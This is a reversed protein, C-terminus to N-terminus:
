RVEIMAVVDVHGPQLTGSFAATDHGSLGAVYCTAFDYGPTKYTWATVCSHVLLADGAQTTLPVWDSRATKYPALAVGPGGAFTVPVPPAAMNFGAARKGISMHLLDLGDWLSQVTVRVEAGGQSISPILSRKSFAGVGQVSGNPLDHHVIGPLESFGVLSRLRVAPFISFPRNPAGGVEFFLGLKQGAKYPIAVPHDRWDLLDAGPRFLLRGLLELGIPQCREQAPVGSLRGYLEGYVAWTIDGYCTGPYDAMQQSWIHSQVIEADPPFWDYAIAWQELFADRKFALAGSADVTAEISPGNLRIVNPM